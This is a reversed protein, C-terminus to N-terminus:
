LENIIKEIQKVTRTDCEKYDITIIHSYSLDKYTLNIEGNTKIKFNKLRKSINIREGKLEKLMAKYTKDKTNIYISGDFKKDIFSYNDTIIDRDIFTMFAMSISKEKGYDLSNVCNCNKDVKEQYKYFIDEIKERFMEESISINMEKM